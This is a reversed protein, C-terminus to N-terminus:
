ETPLIRFRTESPPGIEAGSDGVALRYDGPLLYAAPLAVILTDYLTPELAEDRWLTEGAADRLEVDYPAASGAPLELSLLLIEEGPEPRIEVPEGSNRMLGLSVVLLDAVPASLAGRAPPEGGSGAVQPDPGGPERLLLLPLALVALVVGAATALRSPSQSRLWGVLGGSVVPRTASEAAVQRLGRRMEEGAQAQALCDACEFLHEEFLAEEEADLRGGLYLDVVHEDDIRPHRMIDREISM